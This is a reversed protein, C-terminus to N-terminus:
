INVIIKDVGHVEMEIIDGPKIPVAPAFAGSIIIQGKKLQSESDALKNALWAVAAAPNGMVATSSGASAINGNIKLTMQLEANQLIYPSIMKRGLIVRGSSSNDAVKDNMCAGTEFRSDVIEVGAKIYGAAKLVDDATIGPGTLTEELIFAIEGEAKPKILQSLAQNDEEQFIMKDLIFGYIPENLGNEIQKQKTTLGIKYGQHRSGEALRTQLLQRQILYACNISFNGHTQSPPIIGSSNREAEALDAAIKKIVTEELIV